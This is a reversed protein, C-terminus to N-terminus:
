REFSLGDHQRCPVLLLRQQGATKLFRVMSTVFAARRMDLPNLFPRGTIEINTREVIFQSLGVSFGLVSTDAM